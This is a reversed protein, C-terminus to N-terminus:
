KAAEKDFMENLVAYVAQTVFSMGDGHKFYSKIAVTVADWVAEQVMGEFDYAVIAKEIQREVEVEVNEHHQHLYHMISYKMQDIELKVLPPLNSSM